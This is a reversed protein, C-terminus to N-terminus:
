VRVRAQDHMAKKQGPATVLNVKIQKCLVFCLCGNICLHILNDKKKFWYAGAVSTDM